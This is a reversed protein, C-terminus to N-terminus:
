LLYPSETHFLPKAVPDTEEIAYSSGKDNEFDPDIADNACQNYLVFYRTLELCSVPVYFKSYNSKLIRDM